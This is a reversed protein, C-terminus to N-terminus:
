TIHNEISLKNDELIGTSLGRIAEVLPAKRGNMTPLNLEELKLASKRLKKPLLVVELERELRIKELIKKSINKNYNIKFQKLESNIEELKTKLAENAKEISVLNNLKNLLATIEAQLATIEAQTSGMVEMNSDEIDTKLKQLKSKLDKNEKSLLDKNKDIEFRLEQYKAMALGVGSTAKKTFADVEQKLAKKEEEVKETTSTELSTFKEDLGQILINALSGIRAVEETTQTKLEEVKINLQDTLEEFKTDQHDGLNETKANTSTELETKIKTLKTKLKDIQKEQEQGKAEIKNYLIATPAVVGTTLGVTGAVGAVALKRNKNILKNKKM